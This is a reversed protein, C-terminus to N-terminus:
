KKQVAQKRAILFYILLALGSLFFILGFTMDDAIRYPLFRGLIIALGIAICILGWKISGLPSHLQNGNKVFLYKLNEDLKGSAIIERRIRNDSIVKTFMVISGFIVALIIAPSIEEWM